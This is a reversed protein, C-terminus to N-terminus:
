MVAYAVIFLAMQRLVNPTNVRYYNSLKHPALLLSSTYSDYVLWLKCLYHREPFSAIIKEELFVSVSCPSRIRLFSGFGVFHRRACLGCFCIRHKSIERSADGVPLSSRPRVIRSSGTLATPETLWDAETRCAFFMTWSASLAETVGTLLRTHMPPSSWRNEPPKCARKDM